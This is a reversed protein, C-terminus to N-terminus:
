LESLLLMEKDYAGLIDYGYWFPSQALIIPDRDKNLKQFNDSTAIVLILSKKGSLAMSKNQYDTIIRIVEDPLEPVFIDLPHLELVYKELLEEVKAQTTTNFKCFFDKYQLYKKRNEMREMIGEIDRSVYRQSVLDKKLKLIEIKQDIGELDIDRPPMELESLVDIPKVAKKLTKVTDDNSGLDASPYQLGTQQVQGGIFSGRIDIMYNDSLEDVTINPTQEYELDFRNKNLRFYDLWEFLWKTLFFKRVFREPNLIKSKYYRARKVSM